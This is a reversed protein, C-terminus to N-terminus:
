SQCLHDTERHAEYYRSMNQIHANGEPLLAKKTVWQNEGDKLISTEIQFKKQREKTIKSYIKKM